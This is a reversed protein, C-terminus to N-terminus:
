TELAVRQESRAIPSAPAVVRPTADSDNSSADGGIGDIDEVGANLQRDKDVWKPLLEDAKDVVFKGVGVETGGFDTTSSAYSAAHKNISGIM